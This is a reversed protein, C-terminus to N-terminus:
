QRCFDDRHRNSQRDTGRHRQSGHQQRAEFAARESPDLQDLAHLFALEELQPNM